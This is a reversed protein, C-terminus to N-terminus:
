YKIIYIVYANKPRSENGGSNATNSSSGGGYTAQANNGSAVNTVGIGTAWVGSGPAHNHSKFEDTQISGVNNGTNGGINSATRGAKDPDNGAQGDVGRLFRGRLDPLNFTSSNDGYGWNTGIAEFLDAYQIRSIATGDCVLWGQPATAGAYAQVTGVPQVFGTKDKIRGNVELQATPNNTGVGMYGNPSFTLNSPDSNDININFALDSSAGFSARGNLYPNASSCNVTVSSGGTAGIIEFTYINGSSFQIPTIGTTFDLTRSQLTSNLGTFTKQGIAQTGNGEGSYIKVIVSSGSSVSLNLVIQRLKGNSTAKFSQWAGENPNSICSSGGFSLNIMNTISTDLVTLNGNVVLDGSNGSGSGQPLVVYNGQSIRLTDNSLNLTQIENTNSNDLTPIGSIEGWSIGDKINAPVTYDREFPSYLTVTDIPNGNYRVILQRSTTTADFLNLPLPTISGLVVAYLGNNVQVGAHTETWNIPPDNILFQFSQNGSVPTNNQFIKGQFTLQQASSYTLSFALIVLTYLYKKM